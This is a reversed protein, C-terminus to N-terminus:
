LDILKWWHRVSSDDARWIGNSKQYHLGVLIVVSDNGLLRKLMTQHLQKLTPQLRKTLARAETRTTWTGYANEIERLFDEFSHRFKIKLELDCGMHRETTGVSPCFRRHGNKVVWEDQPPPSQAPAKPPPKAPPRPRPKFVEGFGTEIFYVVADEV